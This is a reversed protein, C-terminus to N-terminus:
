KIWITKINLFEKIGDEALERGYGSKKVGGFPTKPNSAMMGNITVTGTEIQRALAKANAENKSWLAGGLGFPSDNALKVAADQDPVTFFIAAPGFLEQDYAPTGPKVNGVICPHFFRNEDDGNATGHLLTGGNNLTQQVQESLEEVLDKRALPGYDTNEDLPDGAKLQKLQEIFVELFDAAISDEVIFRKAAICSQGTNLMRGKVATQAAKKLDADALVIYPDSGGLELVTKKMQKGAREAVKSGAIESGTLTAAKVLPHDLVQNVKSSSVMLTQFVAAPFGSQQFLEEIAMACQPVNSAHKLLGVNGAMLNPAAFRYVQWFPFNWPMVALIVGIPDFVRYAEGEDVPLPEDALFKEANEAYYECVLACKNIESKSESIPKGMEQTIMTALENVRSKLNKAMALMLEARDTFSTSKWSQYAQHANQIIHEIQDESHEEYEKLLQDNYPNISQIPM